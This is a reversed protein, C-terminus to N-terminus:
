EKKNIYINIRNHISLTKLRLTPTPSRETKEMSTTSTTQKHLM